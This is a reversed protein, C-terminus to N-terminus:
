TPSRACAPSCCRRPPPRPTPPTHASIQAGFSQAGFQAASNRPPAAGRGVHPVRGPLHDRAAGGPPAEREAARDAHRRGARAGRAGRGRPRRAARGRLRVPAHRRRRHAPGDGAGRARDGAGRGHRHRRGDRRHHLVDRAGQPAGDAAQAVGGGVPAGPGAARRHRPGVHAGARAAAQRAGPEERAGALRHERRRVRHEAPLRGRPDHQRDRQRGRRRRRRGHDASRGRRAGGGRAGPDLHAGRRRRAGLDVAPADGAGDVAALGAGAPARRGRSRSSFAYPRRTSANPEECCRDRARSRSNSECRWTM